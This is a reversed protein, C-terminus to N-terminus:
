YWWIVVAAVVVCICLEGSGEGGCWVEVGDSWELEVAGGGGGCSGWCTGLTCM